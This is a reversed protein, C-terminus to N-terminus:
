KQFASDLSFFRNKSRWFVWFAAWFVGDLIFTAWIPLSFREGFCGCDKMPIRRALASGLALIFLLNLIWLAGLAAETWLGLVLFVGGIFETWPLFISLIQAPLGGIIQFKLIVALFEQSPQMLKLGGSVAFALGLAIRLGAPWSHKM